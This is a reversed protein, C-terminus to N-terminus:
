NTKQLKKEYFVGFIEKGNLDSIFYRWPATNKAKTIVFFKKLAIQFMAKQM